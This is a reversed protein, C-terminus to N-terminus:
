PNLARWLRGADTIQWQMSSEGELGAIRRRGDLYRLREDFEVTTPRVPVMRSADARLVEELLLMEAPMAALATLIARDISIQRPTLM